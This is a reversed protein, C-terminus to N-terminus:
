HAQRERALDAAYAAHAARVRPEESVAAVPVDWWGDYGPRCLDSCCM